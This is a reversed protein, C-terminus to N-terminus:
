NKFNDLNIDYDKESMKDVKDQYELYLGGDDDAEFAFEAILKYWNYMMLESYNPWTKLWSHVLKSCDVLYPLAYGQKEIDSLKRCAELLTASQFGSGVFSIDEFEAFRSWHSGECAKEFDYKLDDWLYGMYKDFSNKDEKIASILARYMDCTANIDYASEYHLYDEEELVDDNDLYYDEEYELLQELRSWAYTKLYNLVAAFGKTMWFRDIESFVERSIEEYLFYEVNLCVNIM